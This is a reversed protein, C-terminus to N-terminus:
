TKYRIKVELWITSIINYKFTKLDQPKLSVILFTVFIVTSFIKLLSNDICLSSYNDSKILSKICLGIIINAELSNFTCM